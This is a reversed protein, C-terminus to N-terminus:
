PRDHQGTQEQETQLETKRDGKLGAGEARNILDTEAAAVRFRSVLALTEFLIKAQDCGVLKGKACRDPAIDREPALFHGVVPRQQFQQENGTKM